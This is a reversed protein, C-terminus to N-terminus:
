FSPPSAFTLHQGTRPHDLALGAAHLLLRPEASEEPRYLRDGVIPHGIHLLHVRLQHARGTVPQLELRTRPGQDSRPPLRAVVRWHTLSPRGHVPDVHQRPRNPWDVTIAADITGADCLVEGHVVAVYRKDVRRQEFAMSLTRHAAANRAMLLLGSTPQDLRHVIRADPWWASVRLSLSDQEDASRGPVSLLGAPKDLVLLDDDVHWLSPRWNMPARAYRRWDQRKPGAGAQPNARGDCNVVDRNVVDRRVVNRKVRVGCDLV